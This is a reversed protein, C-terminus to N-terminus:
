VSHHPTPTQFVRAQSIAIRALYTITEKCAVMSFSNGAWNSKLPMVHIALPFQHSDPLPGIDPVSIGELVITRSPPSLPRLGQDTHNNEALGLLAMCSAASLVTVLLVRHPPRM